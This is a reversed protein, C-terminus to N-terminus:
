VELVFSCVWLFLTLDTTVLPPSSPLSIPHFCDFPIFKWNYSLYASLIHCVVHYIYNASSYTILKPLSWSNTISLSAQRAATWSTASDSVVWLSFQFQVSSALYSAWICCQHLCTKFRVTQGWLARWEEKGAKLSVKWKEQGRLCGTEICLLSQICIQQTFVFLCLGEKQLIFYWLVPFGMKFIFSSKWSEVNSWM